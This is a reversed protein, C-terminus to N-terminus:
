DLGLILAMAMWGAIIVVVINAALLVTMLRFRIISADRIWAIDFSQCDSLM